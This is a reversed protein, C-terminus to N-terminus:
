FRIDASITAAEENILRAELNLMFYKGTSLSCGVVMGVPIRNTLYANQSGGAAIQTQAGTISSHINSYKVGVYPTLLDIHYAVDLDAQWGHWYLNTGNVSQSVGDSTLWSVKNGSQEYRGGAGLTAHSGEWLIVRAGVGWLLEANTEMQIRIVENEPNTFRWNSSAQSNGLIAYVDTWDLINFTVTATNNTEGYKDVTDGDQQKFYGDRVFDGEYGVRGSVGSKVNLFFGETVMRPAAPNGVPLAHLLPIAFLFFVLFRM